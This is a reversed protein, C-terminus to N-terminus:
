LNDAIDIFESNLEKIKNFFYTVIFICIIDSVVILIGINEKHFKGM